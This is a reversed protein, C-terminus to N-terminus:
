CQRRKRERTTSKCSQPTAVAASNIGSRAEMANSPGSELSVKCEAWMSYKIQIYEQEPSASWNAIEALVMPSAIPKSLAYIIWESLAQTPKNIRNVSGSKSRLNHWSPTLKPTLKWWGSAQVDLIKLLVRDFSDTSSKTTLGNIGAGESLTTLSLAKWLQKSNNWLKVAPVFLIRKWGLVEGWEISRKFAVKGM